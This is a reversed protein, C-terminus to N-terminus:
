AHGHGGNVGIGRQAREAGSDRNRAVKELVHVRDADAGFGTDDCAGGLAGDNAREGGQARAIEDRSIHIDGNSVSAGM